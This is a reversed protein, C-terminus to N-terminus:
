NFERCGETTLLNHLYINPIFSPGAKIFSDTITFNRSSGVDIGDTNPSDEPSNIKIDHITINECGDFTLHAKPSDEITLGSVTVNCDDWFHVGQADCLYPM